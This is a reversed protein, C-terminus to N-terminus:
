ALGAGSTTIRAIRGNGDYSYQRTIEAGPAGSFSTESAPALTGPKASRAQVRSKSDGDGSTSETERTVFGILWSAGDNSYQRQVVRSHLAGGALSAATEETVQTPNGYSEDMVVKRRTASVPAGQDFREENSQAPYVFFSKGAITAASKWQNQQRAVLKGALSTEEKDLRGVFPFDQRLVKVQTRGRALDRVEMQRFGLFGRGLLDLR